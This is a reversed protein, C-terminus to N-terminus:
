EKDGKEINNIIADLARQARESEIVQKGVKYAGIVKLDSDKPLHNARYECYTCGSFGLLGALGGFLMLTVCMVEKECESAAFSFFAMVGFLLTGMGGISLGLEKLARGELVLNYMQMIEDNM